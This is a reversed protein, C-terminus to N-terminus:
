IRDKNLRILTEAFAENATREQNETLLFVCRTAREPAIAGEGSIDVGILEDNNYWLVIMRELVTKREITLLGEKGNTTIHLGYEIGEQLHSLHKYIKM